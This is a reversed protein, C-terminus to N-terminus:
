RVASKRPARKNRSKAPTSKPRVTRRNRLATEAALMQFDAILERIRVRERRLTSLIERLRQDTM